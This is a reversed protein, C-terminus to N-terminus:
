LSDAEQQIQTAITTWGQARASAIAASYQVKADARDGQKQYYRALTVMLDVSKPNAAIGRKLINAPAAATPTYSTMTYLGFLNSYIAPDIPDIKIAALWNSEAKPYDKIFNMYVDGLNKFAVPSTPYIKTVYTWATIAGLNDGAEKRILGLNIWSAFDKQKKDLTAVISAYKVRLGACTDASIGKLCVFTAKYNPISTTDAIPVQTITYSGSPGSVIATTSSVYITTTATSTSTSSQPTAVSKYVRQWFLLSIAAIAVLVVLSVIIYTSRQSNM